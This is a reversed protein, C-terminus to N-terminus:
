PLFQPQGPTDAGHSESGQSLGTCYLCHPHSALPDHGKHQSSGSRLTLMVYSVDFYMLLLLLFGLTGSVVMIQETVFLLIQKPDAAFMGSYLKEVLKQTFYSVNVVSMPVAM